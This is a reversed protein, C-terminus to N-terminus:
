DPGFREVRLTARYDGAPISETLTRLPALGVLTVRYISFIVARPEVTTNLDYPATPGMGLRLGLRAVANGAWFCEVGLPCRSDERVEAFSLHFADGFPSVESGPALTLTTDAGLWVATPTDFRCGGAGAAALLAFAITSPLVTRIARSLPV